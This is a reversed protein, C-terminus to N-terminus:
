PLREAAAGAGHIDRLAGSVDVTSGALLSTVTTGAPVVTVTRTAADYSTSVAVATAAGTRTVKIGAAVTAADLDSDFTLRLATAGVQAHLVQPGDPVPAFSGAVASRVLSRGGTGPAGIVLTEEGQVALPHAADPDATLRVRATSTGAAGPIVWLVTTRTVRPVQPLSAGQQALWAQAERDGDVQAAGFATAVAQAAALNAASAPGTSAPAEVTEIAAPQGSGEGGALVTLFRGDPSWNPSRGAGADSRALTVGSPLAALRLQSRHGAATVSYALRSGDPGVALDSVSDGADVPLLASTAPGGASPAVHLRLRSGAEDVWVVTAGDASFTPKGVLGPLAHHGGGLLDLVRGEGGAPRVWAYRGGPALVLDDKAADIHVTGLTRRGGQPDIAILRGGSVFTVESDGIWGLASGADVIAPLTRRPTGSSDAIVVGTRDGAREVFAVSNGTRSICIADTGKAMVQDNGGVRRVLGEGGAGRADTLLLAGSTTVPAESGDAASAAVTRHLTAPTAPAAGAAAGGAATPDGGAPLPTASPATGFSLQLDAALEKGSATRATAAAVTLRYASNPALGHVPTVTLTEGQWSTRVAAAPVLRLAAQTTAHDVPRDFTVRIPTRPDASVVGTLDSSARVLVQGPELGTPLGGTVLVAAAAAASAAAAWAALRPARLRRRARPPANDAGAVRVAGAAQEISTVGERAAIREAAAVVVQARIVDSAQPDIHGSTLVARVRRVTPVLAPDDVPDGNV